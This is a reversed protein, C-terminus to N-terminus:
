GIQAPLGLAYFRTPQEGDSARREDESSAKVDVETVRRIDLSVGDFARRLGQSGGIPPRRTPLLQRRSADVKGALRLLRQRELPGTAQLAQLVDQQPLAPVCRGSQRRPASQSPERSRGTRGIKGNNGKECTPAKGAQGKNSLIIVNCQQIRTEHEPQPGDVDLNGVSLGSREPNPGDDLLTEIM